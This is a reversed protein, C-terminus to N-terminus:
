AGGVGALVLVCFGDVVEEVLAAEVGRDVDVGSGTTEDRGEDDGFELPVETEGVDDADVDGPVLVAEDVGADAPDDPTVGLEEGLFEDEVDVVETGVLSGEGEVEGLAGGLDDALVVLEDAEAFVSVAGDHEVEGAHGVHEGGGEFIHTEQYHAIALATTQWEHRETEIRLQPLPIILKCNRMLQTLASPDHRRIRHSRMCFLHLHQTHHYPLVKAQAPTLLQDSIHLETKTQQILHILPHQSLVRIIYAVPPHMTRLSGHPLTLMIHILTLLMAQLPLRPLRM